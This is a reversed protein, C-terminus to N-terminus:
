DIAEDLLRCCTMGFGEIGELGELSGHAIGAGLIVAAEYVMKKYYRLSFHM